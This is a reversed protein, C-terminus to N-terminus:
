RSSRSVPRGKPRKRKPRFAIGARECLQRKERESADNYKRGQLGMALAYLLNRNVASGFRYAVQAYAQAPGIRRLEAVTRIGIAGLWRISAAGVDPLSLLDSEEPTVAASPKARPVKMRIGTAERVDTVSPVECIMMAGMAVVPSRCRCTTKSSAVSSLLSSYLGLGRSASTRLPHEFRTLSDM